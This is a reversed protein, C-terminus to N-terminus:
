FLKHDQIIHTLNLHDVINIKWKNKCYKNDINIIENYRINYIKIKVIIM